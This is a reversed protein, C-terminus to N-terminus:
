FPREDVPGGEPETQAAEAALAALAIALNRVKAWDVKPRVVEDLLREALTTARIIQQEEYSCMDSRCM